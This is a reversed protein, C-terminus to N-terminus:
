KREWILGGPMRDVLKKRDLEGIIQPVFSHGVYLVIHKEKEDIKWRGRQEKLSWRGRPDEERLVYTGDALISLTKRPRDHYPATASWEGVYAAKLDGTCRSKVFVEGGPGVLSDGKIKLEVM